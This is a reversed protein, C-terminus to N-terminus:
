HAKYGIDLAAPPSNVDMMEFHVLFFKNSGEIILVKVDMLVDRDCYLKGEISKVIITVDHM